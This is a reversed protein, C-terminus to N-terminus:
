YQAYSKNWANRRKLSFKRWPHDKPPIWQRNATSAPKGAKDHLPLKSRKVVEIKKKPLVEIHKYKLSKDGAYIRISSNVREEVVVHKAKTKDEIQYLKKEHIVTFDNRIPHRTKICFIRDLNLGKPVPRHLNVSSRAIVSFRKNFIPLYYELFKNAEEISKIGRLRMEKIVRDQFTKFLREVRGKAQPSHASLINVGLEKVAREFHTQPEEKGELEEEITLERRAKYTGHKDLYLSVPIGYKRIYGRFSGMAPFIGEYGCFRAYVRSTADDIYGMLVCEAGRGEFWDHISGDMQLMVGCNAKRERWKRHKRGKRQWDYGEKKQVILLKRLSEDSIKIGELEFLKESALTPGFGEYKSKCLREIKEKKKEDICRNSRKGRLGHIIGKEGEKRVNFVLRRVQRDSLELIKSAEVQSMKGEIASKVYYLRRIEEKSMIIIDKEAM